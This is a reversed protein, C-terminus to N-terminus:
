RSDQQNTTTNDILRTGRGSDQRRFIYVEDSSSESHVMDDDADEENSDVQNRSLKGLVPVGRQVNIREDTL